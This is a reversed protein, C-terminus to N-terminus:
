GGTQEAVFRATNVEFLDLIEQNIDSDSWMVAADSPHNREVWDAFVLFSVEGWRRAFGEDKDVMATIGKPGVEMIYTGPVPEEGLADSWANSGAVACEAQGQDTQICEDLTWQWGVSEYWEFQGELSHARGFINAGGSETAAAPDVYAIAAEADGDAVAVWFATAMDVPTAAIQPGRSAMFLGIATVIALTALAPVLWRAQRPPVQQKETKLETMEWSRKSRDELHGPDLPEVPDLLDLSPVPNAKAFMAVVQDETIM